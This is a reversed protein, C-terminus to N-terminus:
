RAIARVARFLRGDTVILGLVILAFGIYADRGITEGLFTAGLGVAFPPIILTVLMLNASGARNLITFYLLYAFATSMTALALLAAWVDASLSLQPAGETILVIPFLILTSGILMGLANVVPTYDSLFRRGWVGALSYSLAAGLVALQAVSQLDLRLLSDLGMIVAVGLFGLGAGLAKGITVREDALFLGAVVVGFFATTSNLIAALGSEITTQGWFILSFPIANNLAGMVLFPLWAGPRRPLQVGQWFALILLAPIAWFVRHLAVTLPPVESLAIEALFFSGGWVTGLALLMSGSKLDFHTPANRM